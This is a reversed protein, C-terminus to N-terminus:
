PLMNAHSDNEFLYIKSLILRLSMFFELFELLSYTDFFDEIKSFLKIQSFNESTPNLLSILSDFM